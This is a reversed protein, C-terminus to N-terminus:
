LERLPLDLLVALARADNQAAVEGLRRAEVLEQGRHDAADHEVGRLDRVHVREAHARPALEQALRPDLAVLEMRARDREHAPGRGSEIVSVLSQLARVVRGYGYAVKDGAAQDIFGLRAFTPRPVSGRLGIWHRYRRLAPLRAAVPARMRRRPKSGGVRGCATA